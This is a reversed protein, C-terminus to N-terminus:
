LCDKLTLVTQQYIDHSRWAETSPLAAYFLDLCYSTALLAIDFPVTTKNEPEEGAKKQKNTKKNQKKQKYFKIDCLCPICTFLLSSICSM